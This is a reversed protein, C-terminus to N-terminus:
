IGAILTGMSPLCLLEDYLCGKGDCVAKIITWVNGM